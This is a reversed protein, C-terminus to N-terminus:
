KGFLTVRGTTYGYSSMAGSFIGRMVNEMPFKTLREIFVCYAIGIVLPAFPLARTFWKGPEVVFKNEGPPSPLLRKLLQTLVIGLGVAQLSIFTTIIPLIDSPDFPM